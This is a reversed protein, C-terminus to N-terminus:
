RPNSVLKIKKNLVKAVRNVTEITPNAYGSELRAIYEQKVGIKKALQEQTLKKSLRAKLLERALRYEPELREYEAKVNKDRLLKRKLENWNKM